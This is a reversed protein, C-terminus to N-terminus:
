YFSSRIIIKINMLFRKMNILKASAIQNNIQGKFKTMKKINRCRGNVM